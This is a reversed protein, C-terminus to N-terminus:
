RRKGRKKGGLHMFPSNIRTKGRKGRNRRKM